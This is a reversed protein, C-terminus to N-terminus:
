WRVLLGERSRFVTYDLFIHLRLTASPLCSAVFTPAARDNLTGGGTSAIGFIVHLEM